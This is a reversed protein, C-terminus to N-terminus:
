YMRISERGISIQTTTLAPAQLNIIALNVTFRKPSCFSTSGQFQLIHEVDIPIRLCAFFINLILFISLIEAYKAAATGGPGGGIIAVKRVDWYKEASM